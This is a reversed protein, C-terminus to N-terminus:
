QKLSALYAQHKARHEKAGDRLFQWEPALEYNAEPLEIAGGCDSHREVYEGTAFDGDIYTHREHIEQNCHPCVHYPVPRTAEIVKKIPAAAFPKPSEASEGLM